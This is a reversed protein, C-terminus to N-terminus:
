LVRNICYVQTETKWKVYILVVNDFDTHLSRCFRLATESDVLRYSRKCMQLLMCTASKGHVYLIFLTWNVFHVAHLLTQRQLGIAVRSAWSNGVEHPRVNLFDPHRVVNLTIKM